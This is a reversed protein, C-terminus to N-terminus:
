EGRTCTRSSCLFASLVQVHTNHSWALVSYSSGDQLCLLLLKQQYIKTVKICNANMHSSLNNYILYHIAHMIMIIKFYWWSNYCIHIFKRKREPTRCRREQGRLGPDRLQKCLLTAPMRSLGCCGTGDGHHMCVRHRWPRRPDPMLRTTGEQQTHFILSLYGLWVPSYVPNTGELSAYIIMSWIIFWM